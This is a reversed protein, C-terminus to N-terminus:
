DDIEIASDASSGLPKRMSRWEKGLFEKVYADVMKNSMGNQERNTRVWRGECKSVVYASNMLQLFRHHRGARRRLLSGDQYDEEGHTLLKLIQSKRELVSSESIMLTDGGMCVYTGLVLPPLHPYLVNPTFLDLKSLGHDKIAATQTQAKTLLASM